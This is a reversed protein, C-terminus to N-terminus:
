NNWTPVHKVIRQRSVNQAFGNCYDIKIANLAVWEGLSHKKSINLYIPTIGGMLHVSIVRKHTLKTCTHM